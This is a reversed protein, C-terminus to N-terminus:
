LSECAAALLAKAKDYDASGPILEIMVNHKTAALMGGGVLAASDWPGTLASDTAVGHTLSPAALSGGTLKSVQALM